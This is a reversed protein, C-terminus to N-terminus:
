KKASPLLGRCSKSKGKLLLSTKLMFSEYNGRFLNKSTLASNTQTPARSLTEDAEKPHNIIWKTKDLRDLGFRFRELRAEFGFLLFWASGERRKRIFVAAALDLM